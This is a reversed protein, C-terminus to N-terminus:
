AWFYICYQFVFYFQDELGMSRRIEEIRMSTWRWFDEWRNQIRFSRSPAEKDRLSTFSFLHHNSYSSSMGYNMCIVLSLCNILISFFFIYIFNEGMYVFSLSNHHQNWMIVLSIRMRDNLIILINFIKKVLLSNWVTFVHVYLVWM